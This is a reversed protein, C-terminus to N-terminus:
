KGILKHHHKNDFSYDIKFQSILGSLTETMHTLENATKAVETINHASDAIAKSITSINKSIQESTASQEDNAAAIHNIMGLLENSASLIRELSDGAKDALEIANRVENTEKDMAKVAQDTDTQITKVMISIEKTASTTNVALKGVSDAVVAFGRGHEGARAAEIAANLSLLNTQDAINSIVDVIEGIQNSHEGLKAMNGASVKVVDAIEKMKEVTQEVIKGGQNAKVGSEKAVEATKVASHANDTVTRSMEEMAAAIEDTQLSQTQISTAITEVTASIEASASAVVLIAENLQTILHSLSDGLVNVYGTFSKMDNKYEGVVRITLNGKSMEQLVKVTESLPQYIKDWAVNMSNIIQHFNGQHKSADMRFEINGNGLADALEKTDALVNALADRVKEFNSAISKFNEFEAQTYQNPEEMTLDIDINGISMKEISEALKKVAKENYMTKYQEASVNTDIEVYGIINGKKDRLYSAATKYYENEFAWPVFEKHSKLCSVGCREDRCIDLNWLDGCYMGMIEKRTKQVLSLGKKNLFTMNQNIDTVSITTETMSDLIAEYWHAKDNFVKTTLLAFVLGLILAVTAFIITEWISTEAIDTNVVAINEVATANLDYLEQINAYIKNAAENTLDLMEVTKHLDGEHAIPMMTEVLPRYNTNFQNQIDLAIELSQRNIESNYNSNEFAQVLANTKEAMADLLGILRMSQNTYENSDAMVRIIFGRSTQRLNSFAVEAHMVVKLPIVYYHISEVYEDNLKNINNTSFFGLTMTLLLMIMFSGLMKTRISINNISNAM